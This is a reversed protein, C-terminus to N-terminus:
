AALSSLVPIAISSQTHSSSFSLFIANEWKSLILTSFSNHSYILPVTRSAKTAKSLSPSISFASIFDPFHIKLIKYNGLISAQSVLTKLLGKGLTELSLWLM